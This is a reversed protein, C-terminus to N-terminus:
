VAAAGVRSAALEAKLITLEALLEEATPIRDGLAQQLYSIKSGHNHRNEGKCPFWIALEELEFRDNRKASVRFPIPTGDTKTVRFEGPELRNLLDVEIPKLTDPTEEYGVWFMKCKLPAKPRKLDGEPYSYVSIGPSQRNEPMERTLRERELLLREAEIAVREADAPTATKMQSILAQVAALFDSKSVAEAPLEPDDRKNWPQKKPDDIAM